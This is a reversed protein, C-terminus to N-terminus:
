WGPSELESTMGAAVVGVGILVSGGGCNNSIRGGSWVRKDRRRRGVDVSPEVGAGSVIVAIDGFSRAVAAVNM